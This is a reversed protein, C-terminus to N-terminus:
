SAGAQGQGPGAAPRKGAPTRTPERARRRLPLRAVRAAQRAPRGSPSAPRFGARLSSQASFCMVSAANGSAQPPWACPAVVEGCEVLALQHDPLAKLWAEPGGFRGHLAGRCLEDGVGGRGGVDAQWAGEDPFEHAASVTLGVGARQPKAACRRLCPGQVPRDDHHESQGTCPRQPRQRHLPRVPLAAPQHHPM